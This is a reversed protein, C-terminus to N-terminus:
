READWKEDVPAMVDDESSWTASGLLTPPEAVDIPVVKAVPRGRRTVIIAVGTQAVGEILNL